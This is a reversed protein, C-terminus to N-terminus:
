MDARIEVRLTYISSEKGVNRVSFSSIEALRLRILSEFLCEELLFTKILILIESFVFGRPIQEHKWRM